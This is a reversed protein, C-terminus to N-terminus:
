KQSIIQRNTVSGAVKVSNVKPSGITRTLIMTGTFGRIGGLRCRISASEAENPSDPSPGLITGGLFNTTTGIKLVSKRLGTAPDIIQEYTDPDETTFSIDYEGNSGALNQMNIQVDTFRKREMTALDYGRTILTSNISPSVISDSNDVNLTDNSSESAEIQHLGGNSTVAYINNRESASGIVFDKILFRSDGFTDLSEWGKNLFNYVLIANNGYADGAGPVSDLPVALYYRNEFLVGVARDSYDANIRDIYPQINKSLPEETGRLNYDNLFEIGYVGDDSLFLMANGRM